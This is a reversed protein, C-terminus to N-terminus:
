SGNSARFFEFKTVNAIFFPFYDPTGIHNGGEIHTPLRYGQFSKFKSLYGGFPQYQFTKTSNENSWRQIKVQTPQGNEALTIDIDQKLKDFTVTARATNVDVESWIVNESDLLSAPNWFAAEAMVRGFASKQHDSNSGARVIPILDLLWFRTWSINPTLGDSGSILGSKLKWVLGYPPALIQSAQMTRYKPNSKKGLALQGEMDISVAGTLPTGPAITYLFYRKALDPLNAVMEVNFVSEEGQSSLDRLQKWARKDAFNDIARLLLLAFVIFVFWGFLIFTWSM